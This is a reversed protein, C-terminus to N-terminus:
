LAIRSRWHKRPLLALLITILQVSAFAIFYWFSKGIDHTEIVRVGIISWLAIITGFISAIIYGRAAIQRDLYALLIAINYCLLILKSNEEPSWNWYLGTAMDSIICTCSIAILGSFTAFCLSYFSMLMLRFYPGKNIKVNIAKLISLISALVGALITSAYSFAQAADNVLQWGNSLAIPSIKQYLSYDQVALDAAIILSVMGIFAAASLGALTKFKISLILAMLVCAWGVFLTTFYTQESAYGDISHNQAFLTITHFLFSSSITSAAASNFYKNRKAWAFAVLTLSFAYGILSTRMPLLTNVFQQIKAQNSEAPTTNDLQKSLSSLAQNFDAPKRDNYSDIVAAYSQAIPSPEGYKIIDRLLHGMSEWQSYNQNISPIPRFYSGYEYNQFSIGIQSMEEFANKDYDEGTRNRNIAEMGTPVFSQLYAIEEQISENEEKRLTQSIQLFTQLDRSLDIIENQYATRKENETKIAIRAHTAITEIFPDLENYSFRPTSDTGSIWNTFKKTLNPREIKDTKLITTRIENNSVTFLPFDKAVQPRMLLDSFWEIPSVELSSGNSISSKGSISFLAKRAITDISEIKDGRMAPLKGFQDLNYESQHTQHVFNAASLAILIILGILSSLTRKM